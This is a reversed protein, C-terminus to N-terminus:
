VIPATSYSHVVDIAVPVIMLDNEYQEIAVVNRLVLHIPQMVQLLATLDAVSINPAFDISYFLDYYPTPFYTGGLLISTGPAETLSNIDTIDSAWLKVYTLPVDKIFSLFNIFQTSSEGTQIFTGLWRMLRKYEDATFSLIPVKLGLMQANLSAYYAETDIGRINQLVQRPNHVVPNAVQSFANFLDRWFLTDLNETLLLTYDIIDTM